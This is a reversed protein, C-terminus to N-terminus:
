QIFFTICPRGTFLYLKESFQKWAQEDAKGTRSFENVAAHLEKKFNDDKDEVRGILLIRFHEPM